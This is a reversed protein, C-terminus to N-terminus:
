DEQVFPHCTYAEWDDAVWSFSNLGTTLMFTELDTPIFYEMSSVTERRRNMPSKVTFSIGQHAYVYKYEVIHHVYSIIVTEPAGYQEIFSQVDPYLSVYESINTVCKCAKDVTIRASPKYPVDYKFIIYQESEREQRVGEYTALEAITTKGPKISVFTPTDKALSTRRDVRQCHNSLPPIYQYDKWQSTVAFSQAKNWTALYEEVSMPAFYHMTQVFDEDAERDGHAKIAFGQSPYLLDVIEWGGTAAEPNGYQQLIDAVSKEGYSLRQSIFVLCDCIENIYVWHPCCPSDSPYDYIKIDDRYTIKDPVGLVNLVDETSSKGITVDRWSPGALMDAEFRNACSVILFAVTCLTVVYVYYNKPVRM